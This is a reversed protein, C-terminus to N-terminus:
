TTPTPKPPRTYGVCKPMQGPTFDWVGDGAACTAKYGNELTTFGCVSQEFMPFWFLAGASCVKAGFDDPISQLPPLDNDVVPPSPPTNDPRACSTLVLALMLWLPALMFCWFIVPKRRMMPLSDRDRTLM